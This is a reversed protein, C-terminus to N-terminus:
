LTVRSATWFELVAKTLPVQRLAPAASLLQPIRQFERRTYAIEALMPAVRQKGYGLREAEAFALEAADLDGGRMHFRAQAFWLWADDPRTAAAQKCYDLGRCLADRLLDGQVLGQYILEWYLGALRKCGTFKAEGSAEDKLKEAELRILARIRKERGDLMGYALLRVDDVPDALAQRIIPTSLAPPMAEVAMLARLKVEGRIKPNGLLSRIGSGAFHPPKYALRPDFRPLQVDDYTQARTRRKFYLMGVIGTLLGLAGLMPIFFCFSFLFALTWPKPVKYARPLVLWAALAALASAAAHSPLFLALTQWSGLKAFLASVGSIELSLSLLLLKIHHPM